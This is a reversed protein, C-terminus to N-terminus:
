EGENRRRGRVWSVILYGNKLIGATAIVVILVTYAPDYSAAAAEHRAERPAHHTGTALARFPLAM